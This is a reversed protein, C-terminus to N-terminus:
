EELAKSADVYSQNVSIKKKKARKKIAKHAEKPVRVVVTEYIVRNM